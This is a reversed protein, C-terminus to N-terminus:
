LNVIVYSNQTKGKSIERCAVYVKTVSSSLSVTAVSLDHDTLQTLSCVFVLPGFSLTDRITGLRNKNRQELTPCENLALPVIQICDHM